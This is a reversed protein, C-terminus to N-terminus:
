SVVTELCEEIQRPMSRALEQFLDIPIESWLKKIKLILIDRKDVKYERLKQKTISWLNEIPNLDLSNGTAQGSM